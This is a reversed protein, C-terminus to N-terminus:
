HKKERNINGSSTVLIPTSSDVYAIIHESVCQSNHWMGKMNTKVFKALRSFHGVM